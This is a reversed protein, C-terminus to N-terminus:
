RDVVIYNVPIDNVAVGVSLKVYFGTTGSLEAYLQSLASACPTLIVLSDATLGSCPVFVSGSANPLTVRGCRNSPYALPAMLRIANGPANLKLDGSSARMEGQAHALIVDARCTSSGVYWDSMGGVTLAPVSLSGSMTDGEINVYRKDNTATITTQFAPLISAAALAEFNTGYTTIDGTYYLGHYTQQGHDTLNLFVVNDCYVEDHASSYLYVNSIVLDKLYVIANAWNSTGDSRCAVVQDIYTGMESFVTSGYGNLHDHINRYFAGRGILGVRMYHDVGVLELPPFKYYGHGVHYVVPINTACEGGFFSNSGMCTLAHYFNTYPAQLSGDHGNGGDYYKDVYIYRADYDFGKFSNDVYGKSTAHTDATPTYTLSLPGAVTDGTKRVFSDHLPELRYTLYGDGSVLNSSFAGVVGLVYYDPGNWSGESSSSVAYVQGSLLGSIFLVHTPPEWDPPAESLPVDFCNDCFYAVSHVSGSSVPEQPQCFVDVVNSIVVGSLDLVGEQVQLSNSSVYDSVWTEDALEAEDAFAALATEVHSQMAALNVAHNSLTPAAVSATGEVMLNSGVTVAGM